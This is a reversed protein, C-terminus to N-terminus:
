KRYKKLGQMWISFIALAILFLLTSVGLLFLAIKTQWIAYGISTIIEIVISIALWGLSVVGKAYEKTKYLNEM